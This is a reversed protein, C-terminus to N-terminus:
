GFIHPVGFRDRPTVTAYHRPPPPSAASAILPEWTALAIAAIVVFVVVSLAPRRIVRGSTDDYRLKAIQRCAAMM